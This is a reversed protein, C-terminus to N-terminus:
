QKILEAKPQPVKFNGTIPVKGAMIDAYMRTLPDEQGAKGALKKELVDRCKDAKALKKDDLDGYSNHYLYFAMENYHKKLANEIREQPEMQLWGKGELKSIAKSVKTHAVWTRAYHALEEPTVDDEFFYKVAFTPPVGALLMLAFQEAESDSLDKFSM